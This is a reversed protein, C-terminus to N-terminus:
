QELSEKGTVIESLETTIAAQRARNRLQTYRHIMKDCNGTASDMASMRAANESVASQVLAQHVRACVDLEVAQQLVVPAPEDYLVANSKEALEAVEQVNPIPLLREAVPKELLSSARVTYVIWIEHFEGSTFLELLEKGISVAGPFDPSSAM